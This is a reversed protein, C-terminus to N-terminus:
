RWVIVSPGEPELGLDIFADTISQGPSLYVQWTEPGSGWLHVKGDPEKPPRAEEPTGVLRISRIEQSDAAMCKELKTLRRDLKAVM